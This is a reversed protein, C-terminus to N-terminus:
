PRLSGAHRRGQVPTRHASVRPGCVAGDGLLSSPHRRGVKAFFPPLRFSVGAWRPRGSAFKRLGPGQPTLGESGPPFWLPQRQQSRESGPFGARLVVKTRDIPQKQSTLSRTQGSPRAVGTCDITTFFNFTVTGAFPPVDGTAPTLVAVDYM